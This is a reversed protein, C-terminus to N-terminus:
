EVEIIRRSTNNHFGREDESEMYAIHVPISILENFIKLRKIEIARVMVGFFEDSLVESGKVEVAHLSGELFLLFDPRKGRKEKLINPYSWRAQDIRLFM